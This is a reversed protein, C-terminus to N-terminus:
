PVSLRAWFSWPLSSQQFRESLCSGHREVLFAINADAILLGAVAEWQKDCGASAQVGPHAIPRIGDEIRHFDELVLEATDCHILAVRVAALGASRYWGIVRPTSKGVVLKPQHIVKADLLEEEHAVADATAERELQHLPSRITHHSAHQNLRDTM